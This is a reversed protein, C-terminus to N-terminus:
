INAGMVVGATDTDVVPLWFRFVAGEGAHSEARIMGGHKRVITDCLALGLGMGKQSGINRTSFYPDFIRPLHEPAIGSGSDAFTVELYDGAPLAGNAGFRCRSVAVRICGGAPMAELANATLHTVVTQLQDEDITAWSPDAPVDFAASSNTGALMGTVVTQVVPILPASGRAPQDGRAILLLRKGLERAPISCNNALELFRSVSSGPEAQERALYVFGLISQLLNNFDHAMGGALVTLAELHRLRLAEAELRRQEQLQAEARLRHACDLLAAELRSGDIPKIVYKDLGIDIARILYDPQEFATTIIIPVQRDHARILRSMELGDMEPMLIDTVIIQPRREIFKALGDVGNVATVLSGARRKLFRGLQERTDADDEVYLIALTGLFTRDQETDTM